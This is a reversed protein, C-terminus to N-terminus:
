FSDVYKNAKRQLYKGGERGAWAFAPVLEPNELGVALGSGFIAGIKPLERTGEKVGQKALYKAVGEVGRIVDRAGSRLSDNYFVNPPRAIREPGYNRQIDM